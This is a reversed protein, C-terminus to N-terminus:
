FRTAGPQPVPVRVAELPPGARDKTYGVGLFTEPIALTNKM